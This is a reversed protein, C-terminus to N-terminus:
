YEDTKESNIFFNNDIYVLYWYNGIKKIYYDRVISDKLKLKRIESIEMRKNKIKFRFLTNNATASIFKQSNSNFERFDSFTINSYKPPLKLMLFEAGNFYLYLNKEKEPFIMLLANEATEIMYLPNHLLTDAIEFYPFKFYENTDSSIVGLSYGASDKNWTYVKGKNIESLSFNISNEALLEPKKKTKVGKGPFIVEKLLGNKDTNYVYLVRKGSTDATVEVKAAPLTTYIFERSTIKNGKLEAYEIIKSGAEWIVLSIGHGDAFFGNNNFFFNLSFKHVFHLPNTKDSEFLIGERSLSDTLLIIDNGNGSFTHVINYNGGPYFQSGSLKKIESIEYIKGNTSLVIVEGDPSIKYDRIGNDKLLDYVTVKGASDISKLNLLNTNYDYYIIDKNGNNNFDGFLVKDTKVNKLLVSKRNFSYVSDGYFIETENEGYMILDTFQDDDYDTLSINRLPKHHPVEREEYFGGERDNILICVSNKLIDYAVLDNFGDYNVDLSLVERFLRKDLIKTTKLSLRKESAFELGNFNIGYIVAEKAGDNDFDDIIFDDPYSDLTNENLLQLTGYSTFAALGAKRNKRSIFMQVNGSNSRERMLGINNIPYFFFRHASEQYSNNKLGKYLVFEKSDKAFLLLDSVRDKNFDNFKFSNYGPPCPLINTIAFGNLEFQAHM